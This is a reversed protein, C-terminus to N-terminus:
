LENQDLLFAAQVFTNLLRRSGPADGVSHSKSLVLFIEVRRNKMNNSQLIKAEIQSSATIPESGITWSSDFVM